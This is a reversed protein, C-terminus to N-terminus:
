SRKTGLHGINKTAKRWLECYNWLARERSSKVSGMEKCYFSKQHCSTSLQGELTKLLAIAKHRDIDLLSKVFDSVHESRFSRLSVSLHLNDFATIKLTGFLEEISLGRTYEQDTIRNSTYVDWHSFQKKLADFWAPLGAEGTNIEQGGGVLCVIVAWDTHRDMISILFEPESMDWNLQGRKVMFNATQEKTWARQSEDFIAVRENPAADSTLAEDRSTTFTKSSPM